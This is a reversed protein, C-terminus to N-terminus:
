IRHTGSDQSLHVSHGGADRALKEALNGSNSIEILGTKASKMFAQALTPNREELRRNLLDFKEFVDACGANAENLKSYVEHAAQETANPMQALNEHMRIAENVKLISNDLDRLMMRGETRLSVPHNLVSARAALLGLLKVNAESYPTM